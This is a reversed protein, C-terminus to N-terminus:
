ILNFEISSFLNLNSQILIMQVRRYKLHLYAHINYQFGNRLYINPQVTYLSINNSM